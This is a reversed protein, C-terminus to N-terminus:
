HRPSSAQFDQQPSKGKCVVSTHETSKCMRCPEKCNASIHGGKKCNFCLDATDGEKKADQTFGAWRRELNDMRDMTLALDNEIKNM